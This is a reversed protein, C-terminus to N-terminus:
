ANSRERIQRRRHNGREDGLPTLGNVFARHLTDAADQFGEKAVEVLCADQRAVQALPDLRRSAIAKGIEGTRNRPLLHLPHEPDYISAAGHPLPDDRPDDDRVDTM